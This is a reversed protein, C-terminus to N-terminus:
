CGVFSTYIRFVYPLVAPVYRRHLYLLQPVTAKMRLVLFIPFIVSYIALPSQSCEVASAQVGVLPLSSPLSSDLSM